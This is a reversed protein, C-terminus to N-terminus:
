SEPHPPSGTRETGLELSAIVQVWSPWAGNFEEEPAVFTATFVTADLVTVYTAARWRSGGTEYTEELFGAPHGALTRVEAFQHLVPTGDRSVSRGRSVELLASDAQQALTVARRAGAPDGAASQFADLDALGFEDGRVLRTARMWFGISDSRTRPEHLQDRASVHIWAGEWRAGIMLEIGDPPTVEWEVPVALAFRAAADYGAGTCTWHVLGDADAQGTGAACSGASEEQARLPAAAATLAAAFLAMAGLRRANRAVM